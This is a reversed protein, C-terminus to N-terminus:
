IVEKDTDMLISIDTNLLHSYELLQRISYRNEINASNWTKVEALLRLRDKELLFDPIIKYMIKKNNEYLFGYIVKEENFCPVVWSITKKKEM